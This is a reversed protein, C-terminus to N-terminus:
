RLKRLVLDVGVTLLLCVAVAGLHGPRIGVATVITMGIWYPIILVRWVMALIPLGAVVPMLLMALYSVVFVTTAPM